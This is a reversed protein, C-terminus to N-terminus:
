ITCIHYCIADESYRIRVRVDKYMSHVLRILLEDKGPKPLTWWTVLTSSNILGTTGSGLRFDLQTEDIGVRSGLEGDSRDM